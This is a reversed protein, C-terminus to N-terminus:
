NPINRYSMEERHAEVNSSQVSKEPSFFFQKSNYQYGEEQTPSIYKKKYAKIREDLSLEEKPKNQQEELKQPEKTQKPEEQTPSIYKKKYAKIREDLSLEEKPKNQQEELKQPEKTQEPEEQTPSIYQKKYAKIREELSLEEKPKNQQEKTQKVQDSNKTSLQQQYGADQSKKQLCLDLNKLLKSAEEKNEKLIKPHPRNIFHSMHGYQEETALAISNAQQRLTLKYFKELGSSAKWGWANVPNIVKQIPDLYFVQKSTDNKIVILADSGKLQAQYKKLLIQYNIDSKNEVVIINLDGHYNGEVSVNTDVGFWHFFLNNRNLLNLPLVRWREFMEKEFRNPGVGPLRSKTEQLSLGESILEKSLLDIETCGWEYNSCQWGKIIFIPILSNKVKKVQTNLEDVKVQVEEWHYKISDSSTFLIADAQSIDTVVQIDDSAFGNEFAFKQLYQAIDRMVTGELYIKVPKKSEIITNPMKKRM